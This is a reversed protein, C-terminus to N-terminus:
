RSVDNFGKYYAKIFSKTKIVEVTLGAPLIRPYLTTCLDLDQSALMEIALKYLSSDLMPRDGCIRAFIDFQNEKLLQITRKAVNEHDGRFYRCNISEAFDCIINDEKRVSTAIIVDVNPNIDRAKNVVHELLPVGLIKALAKRPFRRSLYRSYIIAGVKMNFINM